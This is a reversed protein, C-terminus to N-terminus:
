KKANKKAKTYAYNLTLEYTHIPSAIRGVPVTYSFGAKLNGVGINLRELGVMALFNRHHRYSIGLVFLKNLSGIAAVDVDMVSEPAVRLLVVPTLMLSKSFQYNYGGTLNFHRILQHEEALPTVSSNLIQNMSVGTFFSKSYMWLGIAADPASDAGAVSVNVPPSVHFSYMGLGAGASLSLDRNLRTHWAYTLYVKSRKLYEGERDSFFSLGPAHFSFSKPKQRLRFNVSAYTTSNSRWSGTHRQKGLEIDVDSRWGGMAPNIISYGNFFQGFQVPIVQVAQGMATQVCAFLLMFLVRYNM